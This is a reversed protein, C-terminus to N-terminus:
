PQPKENLEFWRLVRMRCADGSMGLREGVSDWDFGDIYKLELMRRVSAPALAIDAEVEACRAMLWEARKRNRDLQEFDVGHVKITRLGYPPELSSGRVTDSVECRDELLRKARKLDVRYMRYRQKTLM